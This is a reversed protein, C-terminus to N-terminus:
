KRASNNVILYVVDFVILISTVAVYSVHFGTITVGIFMVVFISGFIFLHMLEKKPVVKNKSQQKYM